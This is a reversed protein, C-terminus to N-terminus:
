TMWSNATDHAPKRSKKYKRKMQVETQKNLCLKVETINDGYDSHNDTMEWELIGYLSQYLLSFYFKVVLVMLSTSHWQFLYYITEKLNVLCM